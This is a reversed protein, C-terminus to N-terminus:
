KVGEVFRYLEDARSLIEKTCPYLSDCTNVDYVENKKDANCRYSSLKEHYKNFVDGHAMRLIELRIEYANKNM